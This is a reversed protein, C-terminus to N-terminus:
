KTKISKKNQITAVMIGSVLFVLGIFQEFQLGFILDPGIFLHLVWGISWGFGYIILMVSSILCVIGIVVGTVTLIGMILDKM